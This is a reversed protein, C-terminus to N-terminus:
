KWSADIIKQPFKEALRQFNRCSAKHLVAARYKTLYAKVRDGPQPNCCKAINVLMGKQGALFIHRPAEKSLPKKKEEKKQTVRETIETFKKKIFTPITPLSFKFGTGIKDELSKKIHSQAFNTKTFALWDRSPSRKSNTIIEVVDGSEIKHSLPVIKGGIKAQECHNGIDSHVAYAFDVPTSDKPLAIVDGRPTLAFVKNEFFDIKLTKWFDSADKLWEFKKGEKKLDIKEKYSWHACIGYEAEKHMEQTKIQIESIKDKEVFVTTHLSRYGNPKPKAIYDNIEESIPKYYKHLIGLTKYCSEVDKVIIRVAVLDHIKEFDMNKRLLKQYTSWYSKARYNIDLVGVREKKLVKKLKPVFKELYKERDEYKQKINQLLWKARDPFLYSFALDELNRKIEGLGLRNAIPVLIELTEVSYLKQQDQSLNYSHSLGDLRSILEILIARPDKAIAFFMKRLNEVRDESFIKKEKVNVSISYRIKSLEFVREILYATEEGFNKSIEQLQIKKALAPLDDLADHLIGASITKADLGMRVLEAAVRTSHDIFKEGSMRVRNEYIKQAFDFTDGILKPDPSKQIIEDINAV